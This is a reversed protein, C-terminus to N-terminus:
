SLEHLFIFHWAPAQFPLRYLDLIQKLVQIPGVPLDPLDSMHQIRTTKGLLPSPSRCGKYLTNVYGRM